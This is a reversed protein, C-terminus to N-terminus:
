FCYDEEWEKGFQSPDIRTQENNGKEWNDFWSVWRINEKIYPKEPDIRDLSPTHWKNYKNKVYADYLRKFDDDTSTWIIFWEQTFDPDIWNNKKIRSKMYHYRTNIVGKFTRNYRQVCLKHCYSCPKDQEKERGCKLCKM